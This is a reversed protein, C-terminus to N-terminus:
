KFQRKILNRWGGSHFRIASPIVGLVWGIPNALWIGMSGMARFLIISLSVKLVLETLGSIFPIFVDGMGRLTFNYLWIAGLFLFFLAYVRLMSRALPIIDGIHADGSTIFLGILWDGCAFVFAAMLVSILATVVAMDRFGRKIREPLGAGSNQGAFVSFATALQMNFMMVFYMIRSGTSFAAVVDTGASNVVGAITMDGAALLMSQLSVPLGIKLIQLTVGPLQRFDTKNLKFIDFRKYMFILCAAASLSQCVVTGVAVGAVGRKLVLVIFLNLLVNIASSVILFILPTRSDGVARLMATASNYVVMGASLGITIKTYTVADNFIDAPTGLLRMLPEAGYWGILALATVVVASIYVSAAVTKKLTETDKAGFFRSAMVTFGTTLGMALSMAMFNVSATAGVAALARSGLANGLVLMDVVGYLQQFAAGIMMPLAFRVIMGLPDGDTMDKTM